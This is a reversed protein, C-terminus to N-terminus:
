SEEKVKREMIIWDNDQDEDRKDGRGKGQSAKGQRANNRRDRWEKSTMDLRM